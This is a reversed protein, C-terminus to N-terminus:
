SAFLAGGSLTVPLAIAGEALISPFPQSNPAPKTASRASDGSQVHSERERERERQRGTKSERERERKREKDRERDRDRDRASEREREARVASNDAACASLAHVSAVIAGECHAHCLLRQVDSDM